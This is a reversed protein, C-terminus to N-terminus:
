RLSKIALNDSSSEDDDLGSCLRAVGKEYDRQEKRLEDLRAVLFQLKVKGIIM